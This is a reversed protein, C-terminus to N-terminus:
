VGQTGRCQRPLARSRSPLIQAAAKKKRKRCTGSTEPTASTLSKTSLAPPPRPGPASAADHGGGISEGDALAPMSAMPQAAALDAPLLVADAVSVQKGPRDTATAPPPMPSRTRAEGGRRRVGTAAPHSRLRGGSGRVLRRAAMLTADDNGQESLALLVELSPSAGRGNDVDAPDQLDTLDGLLDGDSDFVVPELTPARSRESQVSRDDDSSAPVTTLARDDGNNRFAHADSANNAIIEDPCRLPAFAANRLSTGTHEVRALMATLRDAREGRRSRLVEACCRTALPSIRFEEHRGRAPSWM